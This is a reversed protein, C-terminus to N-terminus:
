ISEMHQTSIVGEDGSRVERKLDLNVYEVAQWVDVSPIEFEVFAM